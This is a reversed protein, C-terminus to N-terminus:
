VASVLSVKGPSLSGSESLRRSPHRGGLRGARRRGIAAVVPQENTGLKAPRGLYAATWQTWASPSGAGLFGITPLKPPQQAHAGVSWGASVAGLLTIFERRKM